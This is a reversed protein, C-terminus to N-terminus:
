RSFLLLVGKRLADKKMDEHSSLFQEYKSCERCKGNTKLWENTWSDLQIYNYWSLKNTQLNVMTQLKVLWRMRAVNKDKFLDVLGKLNKPINEIKTM